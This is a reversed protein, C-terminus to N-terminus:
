EYYYALGILGPGTHGGMVATFDTIAVEAEPWVEAARKQLESAEEAADAHMVALELRTHSDLREAVYQIMYELAARRTRKRAICTATGDGQITLLPKVQLLDGLFGVALNVRGGRVLYELTDVTAVLGVRERASQAAAVVEEMSAGEAAARAAKLAVFGEARAATRTDVVEVPQPPFEARMTAAALSAATFAMTLRSSLTLCVVGTAGGALLTRFASEYEGVSPSSTRPLVKDERMRRYLEAPSIDIGDRYERDGLALKMPVVMIGLGSATQPDIQAVTDTVVAVRGQLIPQRGASVQQVTQSDGM